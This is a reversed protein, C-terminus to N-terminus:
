HCLYALPKGQSFSLRICPHLNYLFRLLFFVIGQLIPPLLHCSLREWFIRGLFASIELHWLYLRRLPSPLSHQECPRQCLSVMVTKPFKPHAGTCRKMIWSSGSLEIIQSWLHQDVAFFPGLLKAKRQQGRQGLSIYSSRFCSHFSSSVHLQNIVLAISGDDQNHSGWHKAHKRCSCVILMLLQAAKCCGSPQCSIHLELWTALHCTSTFPLHFSVWPRWTRRSWFAMLAPASTLKWFQWPLLAKCKAEWRPSRSTISARRLKFALALNTFASPLVASMYAACPPQSSIQVANSSAAAGTVTALRAPRVASVIASRFPKLVQAARM